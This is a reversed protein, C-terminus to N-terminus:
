AKALTFSQVVEKRMRKALVGVSGSIPLYRKNDPIQREKSSQIKFGFKKSCFEFLDSNPVYVNGINSNGIVTHLTGGDKLVRAFQKSMKLLDLVYKYTMKQQRESLNQLSPFVTLVESWPAEDGQAVGSTNETGVNTSRLKRIKPIESGLWVLALKHGRLYDLANLYPPSTIIADITADKVTKMQRVDDLHVEAKNNLEASELISFISRAIREFNELVAYNNKTRVKHPRSHSVDAALSAGVKKTIITRSVALRLLNLSPSNRQKLREFEIARTLANLEHRQDKAFWFKIFALTESDRSLEKLRDGYRRAYQLVSSLTREFAKKSPRRTAVTTMLIALPDTDLGIARRGSAIVKRVVTGSGCMPDLIVGDAPCSLLLDDLIEPAMRAPFPHISRM